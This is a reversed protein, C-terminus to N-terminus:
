LLFLFNHVSLIFFGLIFLGWGRKGKGLGVSRNYSVERVLPKIVLNLNKQELYGWLTGILPDEYLGIFRWPKECCSVVFKFLVFHINVEVCTNFCFRIFPQVSYICWSLPLIYTNRLRLIGLPLMKFCSSILITPTVWSKFFIAFLYSFLVHTNLVKCSYLNGFKMFVLGM